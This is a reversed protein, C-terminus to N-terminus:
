FLGAETAFMIIALVIILIVLFGGLVCGKIKREGDM